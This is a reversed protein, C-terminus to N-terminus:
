LETVADTISTAKTLDFTSYIGNLNYSVSLPAGGISGNFGIIDNHYQTGLNYITFSGKICHYCYSNVNNPSFYGDIYFNNVFNNVIKEYSNIESEDNNVFVLIFSQDSGMGGMKISVTHRFLKTGGAPIEIKGDAIAQNIVDDGLEELVEKSLIQVDKRTISFTEIEKKPTVVIPELTESKYSM